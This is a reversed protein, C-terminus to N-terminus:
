RKKSKKKSKRRRRDEKESFSSSDDESSTRRRHRRKSKKARKEKRKKKRKRKKKKDKENGYGKEYDEMFQGHELEDRNGKVRKLGRRERRKRREGDKKTVSRSLKGNEGEKNNKVTEVDGIKHEKDSVMKDSKAEQQDEEVAELQTDKYARKNLDMQKQRQEGELKRQYEDLREIVVNKDEEAIKITLRKGNIYFGTMKLVAQVDEERDFTIFAFGKYLGNRRNIPIRM